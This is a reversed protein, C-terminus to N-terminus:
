RIRDIRGDVITYATPCREAVAMNHTVIIITVGSSNLAELLDMLDNTNKTDLAGTPEDALIVDADM